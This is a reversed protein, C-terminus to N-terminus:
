GTMQEPGLLTFYLPYLHHEQWPSLSQRRLPKPDWPRESLKLWSPNCSRFGPLATGLMVTEKFGPEEWSPGLGVEKIFAIWTHISKGPFYVFPVLFNQM